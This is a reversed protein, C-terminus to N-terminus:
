GNFYEEMAARVTVRARHLLTRQNVDSIGLV